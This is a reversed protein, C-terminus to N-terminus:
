GVEICEIIVHSSVDRFHLGLCRNLDRHLTAHRRLESTYLKWAHMTGRRSDPRTPVGRQRHSPPHSNYSEMRRPGTGVLRHKPSGTTTTARLALKKCSIQLSGPPCRLSLLPPTARCVTAHSHIAHLGLWTVVLVVHPALKFAAAGLGATPAATSAVSPVWVGDLFM